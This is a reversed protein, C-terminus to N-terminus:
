STGIQLGCGDIHLIIVCSRFGRRVGGLCETGRETEAEGAGVRRELRPERERERERETQRQRDQGGESQVLRERESDRSCTLLLRETSM